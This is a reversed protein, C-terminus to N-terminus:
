AREVGGSPHHGALRRGARGSGERTERARRCARRGVCQADPAPLRRGRRPWAPWRVGGARPRLVRRAAGAAGDDDPTFLWRGHVAATDSARKMRVLVERDAIWEPATATGGAAAVQVLWSGFSTVRAAVADRQALVMRETTERAREAELARSQRAALLALGALAVCVLVTVGLWLALLRSAPTAPLASRVGMPLAPMM